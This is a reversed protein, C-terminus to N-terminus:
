TKKVDKEVEKKNIKYFSEDKLSLLANISRVLEKLGKKLSRIKSDRWYIADQLNLISQSQKKIIDSERIFKNEPHFKL